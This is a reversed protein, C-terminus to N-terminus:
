ASRRPEFEPGALRVQDREALFVGPWFRDTERLVLGGTAHDGVIEVKQWGADFFGRGARARKRASSPARYLASVAASM